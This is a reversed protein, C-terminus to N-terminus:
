LPSARSLRNLWLILTVADYLFEGEFDGQPSGRQYDHYRTQVAQCDLYDSAVDIDRTLTREVLDQSAELVRQVCRWGLHQKDWRELVFPELTGRLARRPLHKRWGDRVKHELPTRLLLEVVRLDAWPDRVEVGFRGAVRECGSLGSVLGWSSEILQGQTHAKSSAERRLEALGLRNAFAPHISNANVAARRRRLRRVISKLRRPAFASAAARVLLRTPSRGRLYSHNRSAGLCEAWTRRWRRGQLLQALYNSPESLPLAGSVAHLLVRRGDQGAARCMLAPILITNDIPHVRSWTTDLLDDLGLMGRFSPVRVVHARDGLGRTLSQICRSELCSEPQDSIASYTHLARGPEQQLLQPVVAALGASDLGGSMMAAVDQTGRLRARVAEGFVELFAEEAERDSSFALEEGPELRWYRSLRFSGEPTVQASHAPPLDRVDRLWSNQDDYSHSSPALVDAILLENPRNSVGPLGLLAEEESAFAFLHANRAYYLPRAGFHDRACFLRRARGDWVAFAFDGLLRAPAESGWRRYAALVLEADTPHAGAEGSLASILQERNDLRGDWVILCRGDRSTLPDASEMSEPTTRLLCRGLGVSGQVWHGAGDPGRPTMAGTVRALLAAELPAGDFRVIGCV